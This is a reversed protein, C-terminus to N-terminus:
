KVHFNQFAKVRFSQFEELHDEIKGIGLQDYLKEAFIVFPTAPHDKNNIIPEEEYGLEWVRYLQSNLFHRLMTEDRQGNPLPAGFKYKTPRGAKHLFYPNRLNDEIQQFTSILLEEIKKVENPFKQERIILKLEEYTTPTPKKMM